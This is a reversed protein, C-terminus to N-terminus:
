KFENLYQRVEELPDSTKAGSLTHAIDEFLGLSTTIAGEIQQIENLSLRTSKSTSWVICDFPRSPDDLLEYAVQLALATKGSGGEGVVTLLPWPGKCARLLQKAEDARGLFGTEDFDPI